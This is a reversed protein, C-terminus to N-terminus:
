DAAIAIGWVKQHEGLKEDTPGAAALRETRLPAGKHPGAHCFDVPGTIKTTTAQGHGASNQKKLPNMEMM